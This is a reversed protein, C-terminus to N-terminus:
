KRTAKSRAREGARASGRNRWREWPTNDGGFAAVLRDRFVRVKQPVHRASPTIAHIPLSPTAYTALVQVLTGQELHAAFAFSPGYAIGLGAAAAGAMLQPNNALLRCPETISIADGDHPKFSWPATSVVGLYGIRDHATLESPSKPTGRRALYEPAACAVLTCSSVPWAVLESDALKGIRVALDIGEDILDVFRDQLHAEVRVEPHEIM